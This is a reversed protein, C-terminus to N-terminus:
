KLRLQPAQYFIFIFVFMTTILFLYVLLRDVVRGLIQWEQEITLNYEQQECRRESKEILRCLSSVSTKTNINDNSNRSRIKTSYSRLILPVSAIHRNDSSRVAVKENELSEEDSKINGNPIKPILNSFNCEYPYNMTSIISNVINNRRKQWRAPLDINMFLIKPIILFFLRAMWRPVPHVYYKGHHYLNLSAVSMATAISVVIIAALYYIGSFFRFVLFDHHFFDDSNWQFRKRKIM